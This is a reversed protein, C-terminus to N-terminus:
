RYGAVGGRAFGFRCNREGFRAAIAERVVPDLATHVLDLREVRQLYPSRALAAAGEGLRNGRLDLARVTPPPTVMAPERAVALERAAEDPINNSSLDLDTVRAFCPLAALLAGHKSEVGRLKVRQVPGVRLLAEHHELFVECPMSIEHIFGRRFEVYSFASLGCTWGDLHAELLEARRAALARRREGEVGAALDLELHIFEGRPDGRELLWDAFVRRPEDAEDDAFIAQWHAGMESAPPAVVIPKKPAVVRAPPPAPSREYHADLLPRPPPPNQILMPARHEAVTTVPAEPLPRRPRSPVRGDGDEFRLVHAGVGLEDEHALRATGSVQVGNLTLEGGNSTDAVIWAAPGREIRCHERAAARDLLQISCAPHRGVTTVPRLEVTSTGQPGTIVLRAM